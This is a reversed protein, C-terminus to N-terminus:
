SYRTPRWACTPTPLHSLETAAALSRGTKEGRWAAQRRTALGLQGQAPPRRGPQSVCHVDAHPGVVTHMAATCVTHHVSKQRSGYILLM